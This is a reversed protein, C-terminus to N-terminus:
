FDVPDDLKEMFDAIKSPALGRKKLQQAFKRRREESKPDVPKPVVVKPTSCERCQDIYKGFPKAPPRPPDFEEGCQRCKKKQEPV